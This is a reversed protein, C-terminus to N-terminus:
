LSKARMLPYFQSRRRCLTEDRRIPLCSCGPDASAVVVARGAHVGQRGFRRGSPGDRAVHRLNEAIAPIDRDMTQQQREVRRQLADAFHQHIPCAAGVHAFLLDDTEFGAVRQLLRARRQHGTEFPPQAGLDIVADGTLDHRLGVKGREVGVLQRQDVRIRHVFRDDRAIDRAHDFVEAVVLQLEQIPPDAVQEPLGIEFGVEVGERRRRDDGRKGVRQLRDLHLVPDLVHDQLLEIVCREGLDVRDVGIEVLM